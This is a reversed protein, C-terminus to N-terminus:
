IYSDELWREVFSGKNDQKLLMHFLFMDWEKINNRVKPKKECGKLFEAYKDKLMGIDFNAIDTESKAKLKGVDRKLGTDLCPHVHVNRVTISNSIVGNVTMAPGIKSKEGHSVNINDGVNNGGSGLMSYLCFGESDEYPEWNFAGKLEFTKPSRKNEEVSDDSSEEISHISVDGGIRIILRKVNKFLASFVTCLVKLFM